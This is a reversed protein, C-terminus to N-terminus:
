TVPVVVKQVGTGCMKHTVECVRTVCLIYLVCMGFFMGTYLILFFRYYFTFKNQPLIKIQVFCFQSQLHSFYVLYM